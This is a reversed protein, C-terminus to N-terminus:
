KAEAKERAAHPKVVEAVDVAVEAVVGTTWVDDAAVEVTVGGVDVAVIGVWGSM